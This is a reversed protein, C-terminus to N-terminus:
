LLLTNVANDDPVPHSSDARLPDSLYKESGLKLYLAIIASRLPKLIGVNSKKITVFEWM